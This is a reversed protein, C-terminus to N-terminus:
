PAAPPSADDQMQWTWYAIVMRAQDRSLRDFVGMLHDFDSQPDLPGEQGSTWLLCFEAFEGRPVGAAKLAVALPEGLDDRIIRGALDPPIEMLEQLAKAATDSDKEVLEKGLADLDPAATPAADQEHDEGETEAAAAQSGKDANLLRRLTEGDGLFRALVQGRLRRDLDWFLDLALSPTMERRKLVAEQLAPACRAMAVIDALTAFSFQAGRNDLAHRVAGIHGTSTLAATVASSVFPRRAILECREVDGEAAIEVLDQDSLLPSESLLAAAVATEGDRALANVLLAGHDRLRALRRAVELRLAPTAHRIARALIEMAHARQQPDALIQPLFIYDVLHRVGATGFVEFMGPPARGPSGQAIDRSPGEGPRDTSTKHDALAM